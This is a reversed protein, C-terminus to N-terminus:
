GLWLAVRFLYHCLVFRCTIRQMSVFDGERVEMRNRAGGLPDPPARQGKRERERERKRERERERERERVREKEKV